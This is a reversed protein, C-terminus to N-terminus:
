KGTGMDEDLPGYGLANRLDLYAQEMTLRASELTVDAQFQQDNADTVELAKALGQKYLILTEEINQKAAAVAITAAEVSARAAQLAARATDLDSAVSRVLAKEDLESSAVQALRQRRDAYRFGADFITWTLNLTVTEDVAKESALPDPVFRLQGAASVSPILRYLTEQASYRLAETREHASRVDPRRNVAAKIADEHRQLASKAQQTRQAEEYRKAAATTADPPVLPPDVKQGVLFGLSIYAKDVNGKANAVQGNSTALQLQAKTVDNTSTLGAQARAQTEDLNLQATAAKRKASDLVRETALAQVFAKATDFALQRRDQLAGFKEADRTREQQAYQPFASPNLLPQSLTLTGSNTLAPTKAPPDPKLTSAGNAVLTPLFADRARDLQGEAVETRLPAKRARENNQLALHVADEIRLGEALATRSTSAAASVFALAYAFKQWTM